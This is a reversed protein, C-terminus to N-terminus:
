RALWWTGCAALVVGALGMLAMKPLARLGSVLLTFPLALVLLILVEAALDFVASPTDEAAGPDEPEPNSALKRKLADDERSSENAREEAAARRQEEDQVEQTSAVDESPAEDSLVAEDEEDNPDGDEGSEPGDAESTSRPLQAPKVSPPDREPPESDRESESPGRSESKPAPGSDADLATTGQDLERPTGAETAGPTAPGDESDGKEAGPDDVVEDDDDVAEAPDFPGEDDVVDLYESREVEPPEAFLTCGAVSCGVLLLSMSTATKM